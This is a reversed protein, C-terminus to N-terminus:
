KKLVWMRVPHPMVNATADNRLPAPRHFNFLDVSMGHFDYRFTKM